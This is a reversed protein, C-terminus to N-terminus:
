DPLPQTPILLVRRTPSSPRKRLLDTLMPLLPSVTALGHVIDDEEGRM